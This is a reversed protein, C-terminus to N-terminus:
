QALEVEISWDLSVGEYAVVVRHGLQEVLVADLRDEQVFEQLVVGVGDCCEAATGVGGVRAVEGGYERAAGHQHARMKAPAPAILPQHTAGEARQTHRDKARDLRGAIEFAPTHRHDALVGHDRRDAISRVLFSGGGQSREDEAVVHLIEELDRQREAM